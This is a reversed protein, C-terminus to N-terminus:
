RRLLLLLPEFDVGKVEFRELKNFPDLIDIM